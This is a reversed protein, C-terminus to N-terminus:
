AKPLTLTVKSQKQNAKQWCLLSSGQGSGLKSQVRLLYSALRPVKQGSWVLFFNFFKINKRSIKWILVMSPQGSGVQSSGCFISGVRTLFNPGLCMVLCLSLPYPLPLLSYSYLPPCPLLTSARKMMRHLCVMQKSTLADYPESEMKPFRQGWTQVWSSIFTISYNGSLSLPEVKHM